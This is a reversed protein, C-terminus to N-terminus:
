HPPGQRSALQRSVQRLMHAHITKRIYAAFEQQRSVQRLITDLYPCEHGRKVASRTTSLPMPIREDDEDEEQQQQQQQEDEQKAVVDQQKQDPEQQQAELQQQERKVRKAAREEAAADAADIAAAGASEPDPKVDPM